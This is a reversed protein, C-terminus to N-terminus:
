AVPPPDHKGPWDIRQLLELLVTNLMRQDAQDLFEVVHGPLPSPEFASLAGDALYLLLQLIKADHEM